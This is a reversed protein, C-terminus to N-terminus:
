ALLTRWRVIHVAQTRIKTSLIAPFPCSNVSMWAICRAGLKGGKGEGQETGQGRGGCGATGTWRDVVCPFFQQGRIQETGTNWVNWSGNM